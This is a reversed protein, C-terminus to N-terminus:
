NYLNYFQNSSFMNAIAMVPGGAKRQWSIHLLFLRCFTKQVYKNLKLINFHKCLLIVFNFSIQPNELASEKKLAKLTNFPCHSGQVNLFWIPM